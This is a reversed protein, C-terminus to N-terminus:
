TLVRHLAHRCDMNLRHSGLSVCALCCPVLTCHALDSQTGTSYLEMGTQSVHGTMCSSQM